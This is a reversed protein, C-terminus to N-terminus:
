MEARRWGKRTTGLWRRSRKREGLQWAIEGWPTNRLPEGSGGRGALSDFETGVFVATAAKPVHKVQALELIDAVGHWNQAAPGSMALHYLLTLSHTKGGGFQTAMNFVASTEVAIGSLRRVTQAALDKLNRALFTREFFRGPDQYDKPARNDRIHDLHVAFESADLPRGERLDERPPIVKYWPQLKPM